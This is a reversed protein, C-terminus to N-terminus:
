CFYVFNTVCVLVAVDGLHVDNLVVGLLLQRLQLECVDLLLGGVHRQSPACHVFVQVEVGAVGAQDTWGVLFDILATPVLVLKYRLLATTSM